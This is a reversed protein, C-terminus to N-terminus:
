WASEPWSTALAPIAAATDRTHGLAEGADLNRVIGDITIRIDGVYREIERVPRLTRHLLGAVVGLAPVGLTLGTVAAAKEGATM